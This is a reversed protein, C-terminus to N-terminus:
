RGVASARLGAGPHRVGVAGHARDQRFARKAGDARPGPPGEGVPVHRPHRQPHHRPVSRGSDSAYGGATGHVRGLAAAGPYLAPRTAPYGHLRQHGWVRRVPWRHGSLWVVDRLVSKGGLGVVLDVGRGHTIQMVRSALEERSYNIVHDAGLERAARAKAATSTAAICQAGVVNKIVQVAATGVGSSASLVLATEDPQLRGERVVISWTPLFVTPLAAAEEYALNSPIPFANAAPVVVYEAYSGPTNTGLMRRAGCKSPVGRLCYECDGCSILPDVVVRQGLELGDVDEGLEAVDGACDGGLVHPFQIEILRAGRVGQRTYVDLRNLAAARVGVKVEGRGPRVEPRDGYQLVSSDGHQELFIAKM